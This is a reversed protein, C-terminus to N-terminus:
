ASVAVVESTTGSLGNVIIGVVPKYYSHVEHDFLSGLKSTKAEPSAVM